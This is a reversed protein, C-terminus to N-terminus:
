WGEFLGGDFWDWLFYFVVQNARGATNNLAVEYGLAARVHQRTNLTVQFEPALSWNTIAGSRLDRDATLELMPSWQRGFGKSFSAGFASRAYVSNPTSEKHRPFNGGAQLELFTSQPLLLDYSGFVGLAVEGTGLGKKSNGTPLVIESQVSFISGRTGSTDLDWFFVHKLGLALDGIGTDYGGTARHLSQVPLSAELQNRGDIRYEYALANNIAPPGKAAVSTTVVAESEPFAKETLLARPLNLEGPPWVRDKDHRSCLSRLYEVVQQIQDATLADGFAPM